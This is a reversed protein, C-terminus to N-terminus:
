SWSTESDAVSSWSTENDSAASWNAVGDSDDTWLVLRVTQTVAYTLSLLLGIPSGQTLTALDSSGATWNTESDSINTWMGYFFAAEDSVVM